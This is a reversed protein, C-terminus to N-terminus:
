FDDISNVTKSERTEKKSSSSKKSNQGIPAISKTANEYNSYSYVRVVGVRQIGNEDKYSWRKLTRIGRLNGSAKSKISQMVKDVIEKPSSEVEQTQGSYLDITQKIAREVEEGTEQERNFSIITNIFEIIAADAKQSAADQAMQHMRDLMYSDNSTPLFGWNGYSLIVPEGKENYVLRMGYENLYGKDNDPLLEKINKGNGKINPKRRFQMDRAIQRTKDSVVGIVGVEYNGSGTRSVFTKVPVLGSMRGLATTIQKSVFKEKFLVKKKEETLGEPNIGLDMLAKDLSAGALQGIKDFIQSIIGGKQTPEFVQANTSNDQNYSNIKEVSIRGYVDKVFEGQLNLIAKEYANQLAKAFDADTEKAIAAAKSIYFTRGNLTEGYNINNENAFEDFFDEVTKFDKQGTYQSINNQSDVDAQSIDQEAENAYMTSILALACLFLKKNM